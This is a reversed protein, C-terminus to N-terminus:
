LKLYGKKYANKWKEDNEIEFIIEEKIESLVWGNKEIEGDLQGPGWSSVGIIILKNKPGKNDAIKLLTNFDRSISLNKFKITSESEYEKSHMIFIRSKDVPGGWFIPIQKKTLKKQKETLSIPINILKNIPTHGIPKNVVLGWAGNEDHEIMVIVTEGFRGDVEETAVLFKDKVTEYFKGKYYKTVYETALSTNNLIVLFFLFIFIKRM